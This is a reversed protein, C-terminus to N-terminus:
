AFIHKFYSEFYCLSLAIFPSLTRSQATFKLQYKFRNEAAARFYAVSKPLACVAIRSVQIRRSEKEQQSERERGSMMEREGCGGGGERKCENGREKAGM